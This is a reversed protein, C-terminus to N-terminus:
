IGTLKTIRARTFVDAAGSDFNNNYIVRVADCGPPLAVQWMSVAEDVADDIDYMISTTIDQEHALGELITVTDAM